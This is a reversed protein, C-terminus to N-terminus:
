RKTIKAIAATAGQALEVFEKLIWARGQLRRTAVIDQAGALKGLTDQRESELLVIVHRFDPNNALNALARLQEPTPTSLM